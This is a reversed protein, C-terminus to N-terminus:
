FLALLKSDWNQCAADIFGTVPFSDRAASEKKLSFRLKQSQFHEFLLSFHPRLLHSLLHM